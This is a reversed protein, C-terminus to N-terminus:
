LFYSGCTREGEEVVCSGLGTEEISAGHRRGNDHGYQKHWFVDPLVRWSM